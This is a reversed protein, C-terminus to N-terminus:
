QTRIRGALADYFHRSATVNSYPQQLAYLM